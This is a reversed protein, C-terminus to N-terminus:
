SLGFLRWLLRPPEVVLVSVSQDPNLSLPGGVPTDVGIDLQGNNNSDIFLTGAAGPQPNFQDSVAPSLNLALSFNEPANGVNTVTFALTRNTDPSNVAAAAAPPTVRVNILEDVRFSVTNSTATTTVGSVSYNVTATNTVTTGAPTGAAHAPGHFALLAFWTLLLMCYGGRIETIALLRFISFDYKRRLQRQMLFEGIYKATAVCKKKVL